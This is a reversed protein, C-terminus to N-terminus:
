FDADSVPPLVKEFNQGAADMLDSSKSNSTMLQAYVLPEIQSAIFRVSGGVFAVNVGGPHNSTPFAAVPGIDAVQEYNDEELLGNIRATGGQVEGSSPQEWCFGFHWKEDAPGGQGYATERRHAWHVAHLNESLMMTNTTGDGKAQIYATTMVIPPINNNDNYDRPGVLTLNGNQRSRDFFVGNAANEEPRFGGSLSGILSNSKQRWGANAVYSLNPADPIVPPDSPCVMIELNTSSFEDLQGNAFGIGGPIPGKSWRDFLTNAEIYPFTMVVWSARVQNQTGSVGLNNIYGPYDQLSSERNALAKQLQTMNNRCTNSRAAERAAQVAPLLLGVLTGIIAIVVLLEVLTFAQRAASEGALRRTAQRM